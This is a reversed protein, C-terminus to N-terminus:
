EVEFTRLFNVIHWREEESLINAWAPMPSDPRGHSIIWFLAGDSNAQVHDAHLNAPQKELTAAIPGDGRGEVGHCVACNKAYLEAGRAISEETPPIPNPIDSAETPVDHQGGMHQEPGHEDMGATQIGAMERLHELVEEMQGRNLDEILDQLQAKEEASAVQVAEEMHQRALEINGAELAELAEQLQAAITPTETELLAALHEKSEELDDMALDELVDAIRAQQDEPAIALADQLAHRAKEVDGAELADQADRLMTELSEEHVVAEVHAPEEKETVPAAAPAPSATEPAVAPEDAAKDRGCASLLFAILVLLGIVTWCRISLAPPGTRRVVFHREM